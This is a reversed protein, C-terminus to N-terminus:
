YLMVKREMQISIKKCKLWLVNYKLGNNINVENKSTTKMNANIVQDKDFRLIPGLNKLNITNDSTISCTRNHKNAELTVNGYSEIEKKLM